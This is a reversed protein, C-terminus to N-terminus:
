SLTVRRWQRNSYIHLSYVADDMYSVGFRLTVVDGSGIGLSELASAMAEVSQMVQAFTYRAGRDVVAVANAKRQLYDGIFDILNRGPWVSRYRHPTAPDFRLPWRTNDTSIRSM